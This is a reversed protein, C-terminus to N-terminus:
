NELPMAFLLTEEGHRGRWAHAVFGAALLRRQEALDAAAVERDPGFRPERGHDRHLVYRLYGGYLDRVDRVALGLDLLNKWSNANGPAATACVHRCHLRVAIAIRWAGQRCHLGLGRWAPAVSVGELHALSNWEAAPLGILRGYHPGDAAPLTLVGYAALEGDDDVDGVIAGGGALVGAFFEPTDHRVLAPSTLAYVTEHLAQIRECDEMGLVVPRLMARRGNREVALPAPRCDLAAQRLTAVASM